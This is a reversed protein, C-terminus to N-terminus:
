HIAFKIPPQTTVIKKVYDRVFAPENAKYLVVAEQPLMFFEEFILFLIVNIHKSPKQL